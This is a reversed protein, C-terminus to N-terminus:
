KKRIVDVVFEGELDNSEGEDTVVEMDESLLDSVDDDNDDPEYTEETSDEDSNDVSEDTEDTPCWDDSEDDWDDDGDDDVDDTDDDGFYSTGTIRSIMERSYSQLEQASILQIGDTDQVEDGNPILSTSLDDSFLTHFEKQKNLSSKMFARIYTDDEIFFAQQMTGVAYSLSVFTRLLDNSEMKSENLYNYFANISDEDLLYCFVYGNAVLFLYRNHNYSDNLVSGFKWFDRNIFDDYEYIATPHKLSIIYSLLDVTMEGIEDDDYMGALDQSLGVDFSFATPAIGDDVVLRNLIDNVNFSVSRLNHINQIKPESHTFDNSEVPDVTKLNIPLVYEPETEDKPTDLSVSGISEDEIFKEPKVGITEEMNTKGHIPKEYNGDLSVVSEKRGLIDKTIENELGHSFGRSNIGKKPKSLSLISFDGNEVAFVEEAQKSQEEPSLDWIDRTKHKKGM